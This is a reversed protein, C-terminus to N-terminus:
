SLGCKSIGLKSSFPTNPRTRQLNAGQDNQLYVRCKLVVLLLHRALNNENCTNSPISSRTSGLLGADRSVPTYLWCHGRLERFHGSCGFHLVGSQTAIALLCGMCQHINM